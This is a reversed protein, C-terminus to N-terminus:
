RLVGEDGVEKGTGLFGEQCEQDWLQWPYAVQSTMVDGGMAGVNNEWNHTYYFSILHALPYTPM